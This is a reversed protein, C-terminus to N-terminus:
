RALRKNRLMIIPSEMQTVKAKSELEIVDEFVFQVANTNINNVNSSEIVAGTRDFYKFEAERIGSAVVVPNSSGVVTRKFEGADLDYEYRVRYDKGAKDVYVFEFVSATCIHVEKASRAEKYLRSVLMRTMRRQEMYEESKVVSKSTQMLFVSAAAFAILAVALAVLVESM